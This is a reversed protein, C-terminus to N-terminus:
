REQAKRSRLVEQMLSAVPRIRNTLIDLAFRPPGSREREAALLEEALDQSQRTSTPALLRVTSARVSPDDHDIAFQRLTAEMGPDRELRARFADLADEPFDWPSPARRTVFRAFSTAVQERKGQASLLWLDACVLLGHRGRSELLNRYERIVIEHNPWRSALGVVAGGQGLLDDSAVVIAAFASADEAFHEALYKSAVVTAHAVDFPSWKQHGFEMALIRKCCDLLLSSRPGVLRALALLTPAQLVVSGDDCYELFRTRLRSSRGIYPALSQWFGTPDNWWSVRGVPSGGVEQELEDWREAALELVPAYDKYHGVLDIRLPESDSEEKASAFVDIRGLALLGGFAAVRRDHFTPGVTHLQARLAETRAQVESPGTLAAYSRGITAQTMAHSDTEQECEHLVRRLAEDDFRQSARRAIFRRFVTPLPAARQMVLPAIEADSGYVSAIAVLLASSRRLRELAFDRVRSDAYFRAILGGEGGFVAPSRRVHPLVASVAEGDDIENGLAAFGKIVFDTRSVEPLECIEILLRFGEDVTGVITPVHHAIHQREEPPIRPLPELAAAVEPDDIGWGHLLSWVPWFRFPGTDALKSLMVRKAEDSRLMAALQAAHYNNSSVNKGEFWTEVAARVNAHESVIRELLAHEPPTVGFPFNDRTELEKQVWRPVRPDERHLRMLMSRAYDYGIDYTSPGGMELSAWCANQLGSDDAWDTVLADMIEAPLSGRFRSWGAGLARLLSDRGEDGRRGRRYLALAAVTRLQISPSREAEHLWSDLGDISPWGRSLADLAAATVWPNVSEHTLAVLQHGVETCGGFVRALSSAAALQNSDGRLALQLTEALEETPHWRGLQAYLDAQWKTVGPWWKGLRTVIAEGIPGARPGDLAIGLLELGEADDTGAEIRSLSDLAAQRGVSGSLSATAFAGDALLLRRDTSDAAGEEDDLIARLIREVDGRRKLSQLLALIAGRWRAEGAHCSVFEVQDELSWTALELGALHERFAAHCFALEEPGREVILGSTDADVDTLERAGLRAQERSWAPGDESDSLFGAIVQRADGRDIGADAGRAQVEYALKAFAESRVDDTSFIRSRPEVDAAATARRNPHVELLIEILKQFLQFRTNPLIIRRVAVSLMGHLLLPNGALSQLRGSHELQKFFQEVRLTVPTAVIDEESLLKTALDHQQRISLEVLRASKWLGSASVGLRRLGTPRATAITFVDHTRVFTEITALTTRAAQENTYEDLGDILLVLRDDLLAEIFYEDLESRPVFARFTERIVESLRVERQKKATLRSWLAFPVLLPIRAGLRDSVAPFLEPTRVLDLALCRLATSKGSGPAGSLLLAREGHLLWDDFAVSPAESSESPPRRFNAPTRDSYEDFQWADDDQGPVEVPGDGPELSPELFPNDPDVDPVVFRKRIDGADRRGPDANLGPDLQHIRADYIEALRKRLAIVRQMELPRKLSAAVEEGAFAVLWNRGFFDDVIEPHSRLKESFQSGDVAEFVAGKKLLRKAQAEITDQLRTDALSARACFVFRKASTAWKGELFDDVAKEIDSAGVDQWNRAQWCVHGGGILRAYVDIGDQAQGPRGYRACYVVDRNKRALRYVLREFDTWSLQDFPLEQSRPQVPPLVVSEPLELLYGPVTVGRANLEDLARSGGTVTEHRQSTRGRLHAIAGSIM